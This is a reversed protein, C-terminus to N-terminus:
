LYRLVAAGGRLSHDRRQVARRLQVHDQVARGAPLHVIRERERQRHVNRWLLQQLRRPLLIWEDRLREDQQRRLM